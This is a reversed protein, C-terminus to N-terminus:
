PCECFTLPGHNRQWTALTVDEYSHWTGSCLGKQTHWHKHGVRYLHDGSATHRTTLCWEDLPTGWAAEEDESDPWVVGSEQDFTEEEEPIELHQLIRQLTKEVRELRNEVDDLRLEIM